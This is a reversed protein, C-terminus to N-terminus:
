SDGALDELPDDDEAGLDGEEDDEDEEGEDKSCAGVGGGGSGSGDASDSHLERAFEEVHSGLGEDLERAM